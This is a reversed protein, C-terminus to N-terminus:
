NIQFNELVNDFLADSITNITQAENTTPLKKILSDKLLQSDLNWLKEDIKEDAYTSAVEKIINTLHLVLFNSSDNLFVINNELKLGQDTWMKLGSFIKDTRHTNLNNEV